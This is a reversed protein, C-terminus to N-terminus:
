VGEETNWEARIKFLYLEAKVRTANSGETMEIQKLGAGFQPDKKLAEIWASVPLEYPRKPDMLFAAHILLRREDRSVQIETMWTRAPLTRTIGALKAAAPFREAQLDIL